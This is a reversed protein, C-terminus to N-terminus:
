IGLVMRETDTLKSLAHSRVEERWQEDEAEFTDAADLLEEQMNCLQEHFDQVAFNDDAKGEFALQVLADAEELLGAAARLKEITNQTSM